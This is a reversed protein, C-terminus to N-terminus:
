VLMSGLYCFSLKQTTLTSFRENAFGGSIEEDVRARQSRKGEDVRARECGRSGPEIITLAIAWSDVPGLPSAPLRVAQEERGKQFM